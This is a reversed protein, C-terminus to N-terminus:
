LGAAKPRIRIINVKAAEAAQGEAAAVGPLDEAQVPRILGEVVPGVGPQFGRRCYFLSIQRLDVINGEACRRFVPDAADQPPM